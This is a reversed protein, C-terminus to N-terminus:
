VPCPLPVVRFNLGIYMSSNGLIMHCRRPCAHRRVSELLQPLCDKELAIQAPQQRSIHGSASLFLGPILHPRPRVVLLGWLTLTNVDLVIADWEQRSTHGMSHLQRDTIRGFLHSTLALTQHPPASTIIVAMRQSAPAVERPFPLFHATFASVGEPTQAGSAAGESVITDFCFSTRPPRSFSITLSMVRGGRQWHLRCVFMDDRM